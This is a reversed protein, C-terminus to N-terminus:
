LLVLPTRARVLQEAGVDWGHKAIVVRDSARRETETSDGRQKAAALITQRPVATKKAKVKADGGGGGASIQAKRKNSSMDTISSSRKFVCPGIRSAAFYARRRLACLSPEHKHTDTPELAINLIAARLRLRIPPPLYYCHMTASLNNHHSIKYM